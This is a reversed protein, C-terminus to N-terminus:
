LQEAKLYNVVIEPCIDQMDMWMRASDNLSFLFCLALYGKWTLKRAGSEIATLTQRTVGVREALQAQTM